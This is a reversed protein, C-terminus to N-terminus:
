GASARSRAGAIYRRGQRRSGATSPESGAASSRVVREGTL